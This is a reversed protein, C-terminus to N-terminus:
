FSENMSVYVYGTLDLIDLDNLEINYGFPLDEPSPTTRRSKSLGWALPDVDLNSSGVSRKRSPLRVDSSAGSGSIPHLQSMSNSSMPILGELEVTRPDFLSVDAFSGVVACPNQFPLGKRRRAEALKRQIKAIQAVVAESEEDRSASRPLERLSILVTRQVDLDCELDDILSLLEGVSSPLNTFGTSPSTTSEAM